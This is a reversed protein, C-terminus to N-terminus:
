FNRAKGQLSKKTRPYCVRLEGVGDQQRKGSVDHLYRWELSFQMGCEEEKEMNGEWHDCIFKNRAPVTEFDTKWRDNEWDAVPLHLCVCTAKMNLLDGVDAFVICREEAGYAMRRGRVLPATCAVVDKRGKKLSRMQVLSHVMETKTLRFVKNGIETLSSFRVTYDPATSSARGRSKIPLPVSAQLPRNEDEALEICLSFFENDFCRVPPSKQTFSRMATLASEAEGALSSERVCKVSEMFLKKLLIRLRAADDQIQGRSGSPVPINRRMVDHCVAEIDLPGPEM